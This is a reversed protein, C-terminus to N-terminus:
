INTITYVILFHIIFNLFYFTWECVPDRVVHPGTSKSAKGPGAENVACVRFEYEAGEPLNGATYSTDKALGKSTTVWDPRNPRGNTLRRYQVEYGVLSCPM